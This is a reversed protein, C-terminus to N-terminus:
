KEPEFSDIEFYLNDCQSSVGGEWETGKYNTTESRTHLFPLKHVVYKTSNQLFM